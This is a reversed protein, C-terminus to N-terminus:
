KLSLIYKVMESADEKTVNPHATMPVEGWNGKGGEIIKQVLMAEDKDTYKAAVEKYTPGVIKDNVNHCGLCDSAAILDAGKKFEAPVDEGDKVEKKETFSTDTANFDTEDTTEKKKDGCSILVAAFTALLIVKKM